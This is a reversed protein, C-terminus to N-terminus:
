HSFLPFTFLHGKVLFCARAWGAETVRAKVHVGRGTGMIPHNPIIKCGGLFAGMEQLSLGHRQDLQAHDVLTRVFADREPHGGAGAMALFTPRLHWPMQVFLDPDTPALKVIGNAFGAIPTDFNGDINVQASFCQKRDYLALWDWWYGDGADCCIHISPVLDHIRKLVDVSPVPRNYYQEVAGVYVVIDPKTTRVLEVLEFQRDHPYVDYREAHCTNGICTWSRWFNECNM